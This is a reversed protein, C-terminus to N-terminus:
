KENRVGKPRLTLVFLIAFVATIAFLELIIKRYDIISFASTMPSSIEGSYSFKAPSWLPSYGISIILNSNPSPLRTEWPVYICAVAVLLGYVTIIVKQIKRM